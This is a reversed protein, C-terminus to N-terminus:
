TGPTRGTGETRGATTAGPRRGSRLLVSAFGLYAAAFLWGGLVDTAWHVGLYVRSLGVAVAWCVLLASLLYAPVTRGRRTVAWILLGAVVASTTTHGSPFAFVSAHAAWDAMPPRPRGVARMVGYRAAQEVLLFAVTGAATFLRQRVGRGALLGAAVACLYPIPGSGTSTVARAAALAVPPRHRVSWTHASEDLPFPAGHRGSVVVALVAFLAACCAAVVLAPTRWTRHPRPASPTM